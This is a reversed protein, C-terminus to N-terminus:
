DDQNEGLLFDRVEKSRDKRGADYMEEALFGFCEDLHTACHGMPDGNDNTRPVEPAYFYWYQGGKALVFTFLYGHSKLTYEKGKKVEECGLALLAEPTIEIGVPDRPLKTGDLTAWAKM